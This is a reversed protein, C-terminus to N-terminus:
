KNNNNEVLRLMLIQVLPCTRTPLLFALPLQNRLIGGCRGLWDITGTAWSHIVMSAAPRSEPGFSSPAM